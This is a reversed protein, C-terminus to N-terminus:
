STTAPVQVMEEPPRVIRRRTAVRHALELVPREVFAWSAAAGAMAILLGLLGFSTFLDKHWLYMAYSAGGAFALPGAFPVRVGAVWGILLAAGIGPGLAIPFVGPIQTQALVAVVGVVAVWPTALRRFLGPDRAEVVALLMGPIFAYLVLPFAGIFWAIDPRLLSIYLFNGVVSLLAILVLRPIAAPAVFRAIVPLCLYFLLEASLTWANGLFGRLEVNYPASM